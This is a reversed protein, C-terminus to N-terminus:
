GKLGEIYATPDVIDDVVYGDEGGNLHQLNFHLHYGTSNGTSGLIGVPQGANVKDGACVLPASLHCYWTVWFDGPATEHKIKVYIGYGDRFKGTTQLYMWDRVSEVIGDAAALVHINGISCPKPSLAFDIGEHKDNKIGDGNYDRPQDFPASIVSGPLPHILVIRKGEVKERITAVSSLWGETNLIKVYYWDYSENRFSKERYQLTTGKSVSTVVNNNKVSPESRVNAGNPHITKEIIGSKWGGLTYPKPYEPMKPEVDFNPFAVKPRLIPAPFPTMITATVSIVYSGQNTRLNKWGVLGFGYGYYYIEEGGWQLELVDWTTVGTPSVIKDHHNNVVLTSVDQYDSLINTRYDYFVIRPSRKFSEGVQMFRKCWPAGYSSGTYQVYFRGTPNVGDRSIESTDAGRGIITDTVYFEEVHKNKRQLIWGDSEQTCQCNEDGMGGLRYKRGNPPCIYQLMDFM